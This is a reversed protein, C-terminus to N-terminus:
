EQPLEGGCHPCKCIEKRRRHRTIEEAFGSAIIGAPLAFMGIGLFAITGGLLKGVATVPFVDGYGVTTLTAIGWWMASPIDPFKDPQAESEVVHMLTSAFVLLIIIMVTTVILEEKKNRLVHGLSDLSTVYRSLKLLRFLRFIRLMRLIRLDVVFFLPLLAPLIAFLDILAMPTFAYRIRGRIRGSYRPDLPAIWLRLLYEIIFVSVSFAEFAHFYASYALYVSDVSEVVVVVVNLFILLILGLAVVRDIWVDDDIDVLIDYTRQKARDLM